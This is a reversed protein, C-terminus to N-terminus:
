WVLDELFYDNFFTVGCHSCLHNGQLDKFGILFKEGCLTCIYGMSSEM